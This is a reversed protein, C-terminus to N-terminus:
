RPTPPPLPPSATARRRSSLRTVVAAAVAVFPLGFLVGIPLFIFVVEAMYWLADYGEVPTDFPGGYPSQVAQMLAVLAVAVTTAGSSALAGFVPTWRSSADSLPLLAGVVVPLVFFPLVLLMEPVDCDQLSCNRGGFWWELWAQWGVAVGATSVLLSRWRLRKRAEVAQQSHREMRESYTVRM